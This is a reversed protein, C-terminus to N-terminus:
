RPCEVAGGAMPVLRGDTSLVDITEHPCWAGDVHDVRAGDDMVVCPLPAFRRALLIVRNPDHLQLRRRAHPLPVIGVHIGLGREFVEAHGQGEAPDDHFLVIEEGLVMAGASWTIVLRSRLALALAFLWLRNRLVAVHGGAIVVTECGALLEHVQRREERLAAHSELDIRAEFDRHADAKLLLHERDLARVAAFAAHRHPELLLPDGEQRLLGRCADMAHGLRLRYLEQLKRLRDHHKQLADLLEPHHRFAREARAFLQLNTVPCALAANLEEDEAEREEWGATITCVPGRLGLGRVVNGVTPRLRQPGLLVVRAM